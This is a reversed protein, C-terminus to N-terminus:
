LHGSRRIARKVDASSWALRSKSTCQKLAADSAADGFEYLISPLLSILSASEAFSSHGHILLDSRALLIHELMMGFYTANLDAGSLSSDLNDHVSADIFYVNDKGLENAAYKRIPVWDSAIFYKPNAPFVFSAQAKICAFFRKWPFDEPTGAERTYWRTDRNSPGKGGHWTRNPYFVDQGLRIHVGVVPRGGLRLKAEHKAIAPALPSTPDIEGFLISASCQSFREAPIPLLKADGARFSAAYCNNQPDLLRNIGLQEIQRFPGYATLAGSHPSIVVSRRDFTLNALEAPHRQWLQPDYPAANHIGLPPRAFVLAPYTAYQLEFFNADAARVVRPEIAYQRGTMAAIAWSSLLFMLQNGYGINTHVAIFPGLETSPTTHFFPAGNMGTCLLQRRQAIPLKILEAHQAAVDSQHNDGQPGTACARALPAANRMSVRRMREICEVDLATAGLTHTKKSASTAAYDDVLAPFDYGISFLDALWARMLVVDVEGIFNLEYLEVALEEIRLPLTTSKPRWHVLAQTLGVM